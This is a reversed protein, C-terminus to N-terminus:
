PFIDFLPPLLPAWSAEMKHMDKVDIGLVQYLSQTRLIGFKYSVLHNIDISFSSNKFFTLAFM